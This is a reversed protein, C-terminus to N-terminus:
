KNINLHSLNKVEGKDDRIQLQPFLSQFASYKTWSKEASLLLGSQGGPSGKAKVISLVRDIKM